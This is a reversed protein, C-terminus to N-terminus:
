DCTWASSEETHFRDSDYLELFTPYDTAELVDLHGTFRFPADSPPSGVAEVVETPLELTPVGDGVLEGKRIPDLMRWTLYDDVPWGNSLEIADGFEGDLLQWGGTKERSGQSGPWSIELLIAQSSSGGGGPGSLTTVADDRQVVFSRRAPRGRAPLRLARQEVEHEQARLETASGWAVIVVAVLSLIKDLRVKVLSM